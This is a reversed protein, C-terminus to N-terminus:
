PTKVTNKLYPALIEKMAKNGVILNSMKMIDSNGEFDCKIAGAEQALLLAALHKKPEFTVQFFGDCYGNALAIM